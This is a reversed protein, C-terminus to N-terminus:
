CPRARARPSAERVLDFGTRRGLRFDILYVDHRQERILALAVDYDACWEVRFRVRDQNALMDRTILYDEEDDEVLLVKLPEAGTAM